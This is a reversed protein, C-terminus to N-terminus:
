VWFIEIIILIEEHQRHVLEANEQNEADREASEKEDHRKRLANEEADVNVVEKNPVDQPM